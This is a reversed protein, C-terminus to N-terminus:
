QQLVKRLASALHMICADSMSLWTQHLDQSCNDSQCSQESNNLPLEWMTMDNMDEFTSTKPKLGPVTEHDQVSILECKALPLWTRAGGEWFENWHIFMPWYESEPGKALFDQFEQSAPSIHNVMFEVMLDYKKALRDIDAWTGKEPDVQPLVGFYTM